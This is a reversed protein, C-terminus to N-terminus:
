DYIKFTQTLFYILTSYESNHLTKHKGHSHDSVPIPNISLNYYRQGQLSEANEQLHVQAAEELCVEKSGPNPSFPGSLVM